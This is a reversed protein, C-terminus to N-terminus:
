LNYRFDTFHIVAMPENKCHKFWEDLDEISLGDNEALDYWDVKAEGIKTFLINNPEELKEIGVKELQIIEIMKSKYPKDSWYRISLIANGENIHDIRKKWLDYNARITHIKESEGIPLKSINEVFGTSQGKKSHTAPFQKLVTLVFVKKKIEKSVM